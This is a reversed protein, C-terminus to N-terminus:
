GLLGSNQMMNAFGDVDVGPLRVYVGLRSVVVLSLLIALKGPLESKFFGQITFGDDEVTSASKPKPKTLQTDESSVAECTVSLQQQHQQQRSGALSSKLKSSSSTISTAPSSL